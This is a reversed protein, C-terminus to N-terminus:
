AAQSARPRGLTIEIRVLQGDKRVSDGVKAHQKIASRTVRREMHRRAGRVSRLTAELRELAMPCNAARLMSRAEALHDLASDLCVAMALDAHRLKRSM